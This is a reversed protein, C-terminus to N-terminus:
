PYPGRDNRGADGPLSQQEPKIAAIQSEPHIARGLSTGETQSTQEERVEGYGTRGPQRGPHKRPVVRGVSLEVIAVAARQYAWLRRWAPLAM